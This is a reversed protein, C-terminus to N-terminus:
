LPPSCSVPRGRNDCRSALLPPKGMLDESYYPAHSQFLWPHMFACNGNVTKPRWFLLICTISITLTCLPVKVSSQTPEEHSFIWVISIALNCLASPVQSPKNCTSSLIYVMNCTHVRLSHSHTIWDWQSIEGHWPLQITTCFYMENHTAFCTCNFSMSTMTIAHWWNVNRSSSKITHSYVQVMHITIMVIIASTYGLQM